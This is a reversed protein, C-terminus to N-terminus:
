GAPYVLVVLLLADIGRGLWYRHAHLSVASMEKEDEEM